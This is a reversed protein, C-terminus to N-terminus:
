AQAFNKGKEESVERDGGLDVKNGILITCYDQKQINQKLNAVWQSLSDFTSQDTVDYVLVIGQAQNYFKQGLSRYREQGATDWFKVHTQKGNFEVIKQLFDAGITPISDEDFRDEVYRSTLNTKGVGADGIVMVNITYASETM